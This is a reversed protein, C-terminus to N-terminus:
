ENKEEAKAKKWLELEEEETYNHNEFIWPKRRRVKQVAENIIKKGEFSHQEEAVVIVNLLDWLADGLEEHLNTIDEKEVADLIENVEGKLAETMGKLTM